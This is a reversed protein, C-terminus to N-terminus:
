AAASNLALKRGVLWGQIARLTQFNGADRQIPSNTLWDRLARLSHLIAAEELYQPTAAGLARGHVYLNRYVTINSRRIFCTTAGVRRMESAGTYVTIIRRTGAPEKRRAGEEEECHWPPRMGPRFPPSIDPPPQKREINHTQARRCGPRWDLHTLVRLAVDLWGHTHAFYYTSFRHFMFKEIEPAHCVYSSLLLECHKLM